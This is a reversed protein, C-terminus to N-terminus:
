MILFLSLIFEALSINFVECIHLVTDFRLNRTDCNMFYLFTPLSIGAAKTLAYPKKIIKRMLQKIRKRTAVALRM